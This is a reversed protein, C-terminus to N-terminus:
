ATDSVSLAACICVDFCSCCNWLERVDLAGFSYGRVHIYTYVLSSLEVTLDMRNYPASGHRAAFVVMLSACVKMLLQGLLIKSIWYGSM